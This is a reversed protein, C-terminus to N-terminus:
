AVVARLALLVEDVERRGRVEAVSLAVRPFATLRPSPVAAVLDDVREIHAIDAFIAACEDATLHPAFQLLRNFGQVM